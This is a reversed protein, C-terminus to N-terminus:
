LPMRHVTKGPKQTKFNIALLSYLQYFYIFFLATVSVAIAEDETYLGLCSM